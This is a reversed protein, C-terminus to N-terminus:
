APEGLMALLHPASSQWPTRFLMAKGGVEPVDKEIALMNADATRTTSYWGPMFGELTKAVNDYFWAPMLVIQNATNASTQFDAVNCRCKKGNSLQLPISDIVRYSYDYAKNGPAFLAGAEGHADLTDVDGFYYAAVDYNTNQQNTSVMLWCHKGDAMCVWRNPTTVNVLRKNLWGEAFPTGDDHKAIIKAVDADENGVTYRCGTSVDQPIFTSSTGSEQVSWGAPPKTGYGTVLCAKLVTRFGGERHELEPARDDGSTYIKLM